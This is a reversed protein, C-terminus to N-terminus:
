VMGRISNKAMLYCIFVYALQKREHPFLLVPGTLRRYTARLRNNLISAESELLTVEIVIQESMTNINRPSIILQGTESINSLITSSHNRVSKKLDYRQYLYSGLVTV